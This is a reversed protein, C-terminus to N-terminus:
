KKSIKKLLSDFLMKSDKFGSNSLLKFDEFAMSVDKKALFAKARYYRADKNGYQDNLSLNFFAIAKKFDNQKYAILGRLFNFNSTHVISNAISSISYTELSEVLPAILNAHKEAEKLKGQTVLIEIKKIGSFFKEPNNDKYSDLIEVAKVTDGQILYNHVVKENVAWSETPQGPLSNYLIESDKFGAERLSKLDERASKFDKKEIYCKARFYRSNQDDTRHSLSQSFLELAKKFDTKHFAMLGKLFNLRSLEIPINPSPIDTSEIKEVQKDAKKWKKQVVLIELKKLDAFIKGPNRATYKDLYEFAKLTDGKILYNEAVQIEAVQNKERGELLSDYLTQSDKYDSTGLSKLDDIAKELNKTAIFSKARYYKCEFNDRSYSLTHNFFEIAKLFDNQHFALQGKYFNLVSLEHRIYQTPVTTSEITQIQKEAVNWKELAMLIELKKLGALIIGHNDVAYTDLFEFAKITDELILYNNVIREHITWNAPNKKIIKHLDKLAEDRKGLSEYSAARSAMVDINTSDVSLFKTFEAIALEHHGELSEIFGRFRFSIPNEPNIRLMQDVAIRADNLQGKDVYNAALHQQVFFVDKDLSAFLIYYQIAEEKRLAKELIIAKLIYVTGSTQKQEAESVSALAEGNRGALLLCFSKKLLLFAEEDLGYGNSVLYRLAIQFDTENDFITRGQTLILNNNQFASLINKLDVFAKDFDQLEIFLFARMMAFFPNQPNLEVVKNWDALGAETNLQGLLTYGRWFYGWSFSPDVSIAKDFLSIPSGKTLPSFSYQHNALLLGLKLYGLAFKTDVQVSKKYQREAKEYDRELYALDGLYCYGEPMLPKKSIAKNFQFAAKPGDNLAIFTEGLEIHAEVLTPNLALAMLFDAESEKFRLLQKKCVGRYYHCVWITSDLKIAEDLNTLAGGINGEELNNIANNIYAQIPGSMNWPFRVRQFDYPDVISFDPRYYKGIDIQARSGELLCTILLLLLIPRRLKEVAYIARNILNKVNNAGEIQIL